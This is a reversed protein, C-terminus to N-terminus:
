DFFENHFYIDTMSYQSKSFFSRCVTDSTQKKEVQAARCSELAMDTITKGVKAEHKRISTGLHPPINCHGLFNVLTTPGM